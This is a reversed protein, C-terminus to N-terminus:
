KENTNKPSYEVGQKLSKCLGEYIARNNKLYQPWNSEDLTYTFDRGLFDKSNEINYALNELVTLTAYSEHTYSDTLKKRLSYAMSTFHWGLLNKSKPARTRLHNLIVNRLVGYPAVLTGWFQESSHNNLYYTYVDLKLKLPWSKVKLVRKDWIEDVDGVFVLDSDVLGMLAKKISEKQLFERTWHAPGNTNPSNWAILKEEETWNEDIVFYTVNDYKHRVQEFYLPKTEGSFTTPAECVIFQDVHKKLM